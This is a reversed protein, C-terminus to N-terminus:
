ELEALAKEMHDVEIPRNKVTRIFWRAYKEHKKAITTFAMNKYKGYPMRPVHMWQTIKQECEMKSKALYKEELERHEQAQKAMKLAEPTIEKISRHIMSM